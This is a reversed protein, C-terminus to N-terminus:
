LSERIVNILTMINDPVDYEEGDIQGRDNLTGLLVMPGVIMDGTFLKGAFLATAIRNVPLQKQKGEEDIYAHTSKDFTIMELWGGNLHNKIEDSSKLYEVRVTGNAQIVIVKM